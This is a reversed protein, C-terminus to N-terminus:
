QPKVLVIPNVTGFLVSEAVSGYVLRQFGSRGHTAMVIVTFPNKTAFNIIEEAPTGSSVLTRVPIGADQFQKAVGALYEEANKRGRSMEQEIFQGWNFPVGTLEPSYYSPTAPPEVVEMLVVEAIAGSQKALTWAHPLVTASVEAGSLPVLMTRSPWQDYPVATETTAHVLWVPVKAARLIKDAVSGMSWRTNGSRGHSAIIIMDINNDDVYRLIEDAHYGMKIEGRVQVPKESPKGANIQVQRAQNQLTEVSKDIYAQYTPAFEKANPAYVHLLSVDIGLRGSLEKVYPFIIEAIQSGDLLALMKKYM